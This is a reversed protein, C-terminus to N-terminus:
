SPFVLGSGLFGGQSGQAFHASICCCNKEKIAVTLPAWFAACLCGYCPNLWLWLFLLWFVFLLPWACVRLAFCYGFYCGSVLLILSFPSIISVLDLAKVILTAPMHSMLAWTGSICPRWVWPPPAVASGGGVSLCFTSGAGTSAGGLLGYSNDSAGLIM